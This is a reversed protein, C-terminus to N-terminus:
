SAPWPREKEAIMVVSQGMPLGGGRGLWRSELKLPALLLRNLWPAPVGVGSHAERAFLPEWLRFRALAVPLLLSNAYTARLVRLGSARALEVLRARSYRQKEGVFQSHRSRLVDHAAARLVVLGGPRVVRAMERVALKEAPPELHVMADLSVLADFSDDPFPLARMDGQVLREVGLERAQRLGEGALDLGVVKWGYREEFLSANLGTGCGSELVREIRRPGAISDLMGFLIRRMGEYWWMEREARAINAFEAPNMM